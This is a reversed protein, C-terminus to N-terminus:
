IPTITKACSKGQRNTAMKAKFQDELWRASISQCGISCFVECDPYDLVKCNSANIILRNGSLETVAFPTFVQLQYSMQKALRAREM